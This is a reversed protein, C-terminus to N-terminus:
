MAVTSSFPDASTALTEIGESDIRDFGIAEANRVMQYDFGTEECIDSWKLRRLYRMRIIQACDPDVKSLAEVVKCAKLALSIDADLTEAHEREFDILEDIRRSPDTIGGRGSPGERRAKMIALQRKAQVRDSYGAIRKLAERAECFFERASRYSTM